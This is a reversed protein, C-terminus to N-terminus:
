SDFEGRLQDLLRQGREDGFGTLVQIAVGSNEVVVALARHRISFACCLGVILLISGGWVLPEGPDKSLQFGSYWFGFEDQNYATQYIAVGRHVLPQNVEILGTKIVKGQELISVTSQYQKDIPDKFGTPRIIMESDLFNESTEQSKNSPTKYAGILEGNRLIDLYLTHDFPIFQVVRASLGERPLPVIEGERTTIEALQERTQPDYVGIRLDIPYYVIKFDDLQVTFGLPLDVEYDWNFYNSSSEGVPLMLTGVFGFESLIGGLLIILLSIHVVTSGWRGLRGRTAVVGGDVSRLRFGSSKLRARMVEETADLSIRNTLKGQDQLLGAFRLRDDLNRRLTKWTCAILNLSLLVLLIRFWPTQYFIEFRNAEVPLITGAISIVALGLLLTITLRVSTFFRYLM